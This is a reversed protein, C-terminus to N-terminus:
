YLDDRRSAQVSGQAVSAADLRQRKRRAHEEGSEIDRISARRISRKEADIKKQIEEKRNELVEIKKNVLATCRASLCHQAYLSHFADYGFSIETRLDARKSKFVHEKQLDGVQIAAAIESDFLKAKEIVFEHLKLMPKKILEDSVVESPNQM